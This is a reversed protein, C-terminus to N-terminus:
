ESTASSADWQVTWDSMILWTRNERRVWSYVSICNSVKTRNEYWPSKIIVKPSNRYNRAAKLDTFSTPIGHFLIRSHFWHEKQDCQESFSLPRHPHPIYAVRQLCSRTKCLRQIFLSDNEEYHLFSLSKLIIFM